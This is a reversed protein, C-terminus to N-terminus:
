VFEGTIKMGDFALTVNSPLKTATPSVWDEYLFDHGLHTLITQKAGIVKSYQLATELNLHTRHPTLRVCDLILTDLDKLRELSSDPIYSCDPLYAVSGLRYGVTTRSGHEYEIPIFSLGCIEWSPEKPDMLHVDLSAVAGGEIKEKPLFLYAYRTKLNDITWAHGYVPLPKKQLFSYARLEDVGGLHDQHPHTWLIADLQTIGYALAQARLDPSTDILITREDAVIRVSARLRKDKLNTSTCVHCSCAIIPVGSSTGSGLITWEASLMEKSEVRNM